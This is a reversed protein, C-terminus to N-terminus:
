HTAERAGSPMEDVRGCTFGERVLFFISVSAHAAELRRPGDLFLVGAKHQAIFIAFNGSNNPLGYHGAPATHRPRDQTRVM